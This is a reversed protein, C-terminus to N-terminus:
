LSEPGLLDPRHEKTLRKMEELKYEEIKKHHGELLVPPVPLDEFVRPRTYLPHELLKGEFSENQSSLNNGLVEPLYRMASDIIGMVALEGGSLIYDGMSIQQDVFRAIFREDIGEYRGCIFVVDKKSERSFYEQSFNHAIESNWSKGRPSPYVVHLYDRYNSPYGGKEVVGQILANKLIDARMVMGEGGGYPSADVGKYNTDSYERLSVINLTPAQAKEGRLARGVVGASLLPEFYEPFITIIWIKKQV